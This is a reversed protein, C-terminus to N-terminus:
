GRGSEPELAVARISRVPILWTRGTATPDGEGDLPYDLDREDIVLVRNETM